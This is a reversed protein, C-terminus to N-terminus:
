STAQRRRLHPSAPAVALRSPRPARRRQSLMDPRLFPAEASCPFAILHRPYERNQATRRAVPNRPRRRRQHYRAAEQCLRHARAQPGQRRRDPPQVPGHTAPELPLIGATRRYLAGPALTRPRRRHSPRWRSRRQRRRLACARRPSRSAGAHDPRDRADQGPYFGGDAHWQRRRQLDSRATRRSRSAQPDGGGSGQVRSTQVQGLSGDAAELATPYARPPLERAPEQAQRYGGRDARDNDSARCLAAAPSGSRPHIKKVAATCAAILAADIRDNKARQLHFVAYARVQAPQFVVVVFRKRRLEAVVAQEYGGSAEIGVRKVKQHQLWEVLVM